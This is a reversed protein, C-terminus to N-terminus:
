PSSTMLFSNNIYSERETNIEATGRLERKLATQIPGKAAEGSHFQKLDRFNADRLLAYRWITSVEGIAM